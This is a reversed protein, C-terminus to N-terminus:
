HEVRPRAVHTVPTGRELLFYSPTAIRRGAIAVLSQGLLLDARDDLAVLPDRVTGVPDFRANGGKGYDLLVVGPAEIVVEFHGFTVPTGTGARTRPKWTPPVAQLCRVNWGRIRNNDPDRVFAKAFTKWTLREIWAPLGLSTGHYTWGALTAPDFPRGAALARALAANSAHLITDRTDANQM